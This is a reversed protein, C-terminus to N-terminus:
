PTASTSPEDTRQRVTCRQYEVSSESYRTYTVGAKDMMRSLSTVTWTNFRSFDCAISDLVERQGQLIEHMGHVEEELRAIREGQTMTPPPVAQHMEEDEDGGSILAESKRGTVFRRHCLRLILDRFSTYSQATGLFDGTSSIGIWYDRLDDKDPIQRASKAWYANFGVTEMEEATHVRLALIFQRWSIHHRAGGLQFQLAGAIDLDIVVEGFRFTSFFELILEHVLMGRIDFPRRWAQSTFLSQGQADRHEILMRSSLGKAMLDPLGGFDFVQVRHVERRYIKALTIKFNAIDGKTYQLREFRLYQYRQDRPPLAMDESSQIMDIENGDNDKDSKLDDPYIINFSFLDNFYLINQEVEDYEFLSTEDNLDFEYIHQPSLTPETLFDSKSTLADNYVIAPFENEFDKFFDLDNLCSVTPKPSPFSPMNVKENDTELDMKLDNASIIKYSFSIKDFIVMYDEDGSEEFSIRLDRVDEDCWIKGYKATKWNFVKRRKQAKEEELRIYEEITINPNDM